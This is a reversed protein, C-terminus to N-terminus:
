RRPAGTVRTLGYAGMDLLAQKVATAPFPFERSLQGPPAQPQALSCAALSWLVMWHTRPKM